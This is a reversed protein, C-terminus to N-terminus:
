SSNRNKLRGVLCVASGWILIIVGVTVFSSNTQGSIVGALLAGIAVGLLSYGGSLIWRGLLGNILYFYSLLVLCLIAVSIVFTLPEFGDVEFSLLNRFTCLGYIASLLFISTNAVKQMKM